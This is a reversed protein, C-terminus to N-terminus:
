VVSKRDIVNYTHGLVDRFYTYVASTDPWPHSLGFYHGVEHAICYGLEHGVEDNTGVVKKSLAIFDAHLVMGTSLLEWVM